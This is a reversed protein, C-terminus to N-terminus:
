AGPARRRLLWRSLLFLLLGYLGTVALGLAFSGPLRSPARFINESGKVFSEMESGGELYRKRMIFQTFRARIKMVHGMFQLYGRYGKGSIEGSLFQFYTSPFLVSRREHAAIVKEVQRLYRIELGSNVLFSSNIFQMAFEKQMRRISDLSNASNVKLYDRFKQEIAMLNRFKELNIKEAPELRQSEKFVSIRGLEPLLFICAFWVLLLWLLSAKRFGAVVTALQGLLYVFNLFLLLFLLYLCFASREPASFAIGAARVGAFSGLGLALFFLDLWFLRAATTRSFYRALPMRGGLFRLYAPSVMAAHGFHLMLLSGFVFLIGAFDKFYGRMLFLKDGKFSSHARITEFSDINSELDQLVTSNVFFLNLPGAEYLIRFGFAGYQNYSAIQGTKERELNVFFSKETQFRRFENTGSWVFYAALLAILAFFVLNKKETFIRKREFRLFALM